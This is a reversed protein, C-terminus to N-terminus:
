DLKLQGSFLYGVVEKVLSNRYRVSKGDTELVGISAARKVSKYVADTSDQMIKGLKNLSVTDAQDALCYLLKWDMNFRDLRSAITIVLAISISNGEGRAMEIAFM